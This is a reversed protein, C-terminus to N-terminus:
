HAQPLPWERAGDMRHEAAAPPRRHAAFLAALVLVWGVAGALNLFYHLLHDALVVPEHPIGYREFQKPELLASYTWTVVAGLVWNAFVCILGIVALRAARPQVKQYHHAVVIGVVLALYSVVQLVRIAADLLEGM